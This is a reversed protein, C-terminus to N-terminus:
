HRRVPRRAAPQNRRRYDRRLVRCGDRHGTREDRGLMGATSPASSRAVEQSVALIAAVKKPELKENALSLSTALKVHGEPVLAASAGVAVIGVRTDLPVIRFGRDGLIADFASASRLSENFASIVWSTGDLPETLTQLTVATKIVDRIRPPALRDHEIANRAMSVSGRANLLHRLLYFLEAKRTSTEYNAAVTAVRQAITM